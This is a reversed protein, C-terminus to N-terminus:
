AMMAARRVVLRTRCLQQEGPVVLVPTLQGPPRTRSLGRVRIAYPKRLDHQLLGRNSRDRRIIRPEQVAPRVHFLESRGREVFHAGRPRPEAIVGARAIKEFGRLDYRLSMATSERCRCHLKARERSDAAVRGSGYCRNGKALRNGRDIGIG